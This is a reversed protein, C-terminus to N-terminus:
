AASPHRRRLWDADLRHVLREDFLGHGGLSGLSRPDYSRRIPLDVLTRVVTRIDAIGTGTDVLAAPESGVFLYCNVHEWHGDETLAFTAEDIMEVTFWELPPAGAM